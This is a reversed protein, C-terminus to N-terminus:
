NERKQNLYALIISFAYNFWDEDFAKLRNIKFISVSDGLWNQLSSQNACNVAILIPLISVARHHDATKEFDLWYQAPQDLQLWREVLQPKLMEPWKSEAQRRDLDQLSAKLINKVGEFSMSNMVNLEQDPTNFLAQKLISSVLSLSQSIDGIRNIRNEMILQIDEPDDITKRLYEQLIRSAAFWDKISILEWFVPLEETLKRIFREDMQFALSALIESSTVALTWVDFSALPLHMSQKCLNRLYSWGSHDFDSCMQKLICRIADQRYDKGLTVARHLTTVGTIFLGSDDVQEGVFWLIPRLSVSSSETPYILWAGLDRKEPYFFWRGTPTLQSTEPDLSIHAQEPQALRMAKLEIRSIVDYDLYAHNVSDLAVCGSPSDRELIFQYRFVEVKLLDTGNEYVSFSVRSDLNRSIALFSRVWEQYEILAIEIVAGKVKVDDRFYLDRADNLASDILRLEIQLHRNRNPIENFLRLRVGHLQDLFLPLKSSQKVGEANIIQGGRAPFPLIVSLMESQKPWCLSLEVYAPPDTEVILDVCVSQENHIVSNKVLSNCTVTANGINDLYIRGNLSQQFPKFRVLFDTPLITCKKRFRVNGQSDQYRIEVIGQQFDTAPLWTNRTNALRAILKSASIETRRETENNVCILTPLGLYVQTPLTRFNLLNGQLYFRDASVDQGTKIIFSTGDHNFFQIIGSAEILHSYSSSALGVVTANECCELQLPYLIRVHSGRVNVSAVGELIWDDNQKSFTWPADRDLEECDAIADEYIVTSLHKLRLWYSNAAKDGKFSGSYRPMKLSQRSQYTTKLAVGLSNVSGDSGILEIDLRSPIPEVLNLRELPVFGALEFNLHLCGDNGLKRIARFPQNSKQDNTKAAILVMDSLLKQGVDTGIPLPFSERWAPLKQDLVGIPDNCDQLSYKQKFEVVTKVMDGLIAYVQDNQYTNPIIYDCESILADAKIGSHQLQNYKPIVQRFARGLWDNSKNLIQNLPLGGEIAITGLYRSSGNIVRVKRGWYRLGAEVLVNRHNTPLDKSDANFSAFLKDWSWSSGDYERRWWESAYIVFAANWGTRKHINDIGFLATTKLSTKLSEFEEDNMRYRYLPRADISSIKRTSLFKTLWDKPLM